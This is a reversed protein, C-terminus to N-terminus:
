KIIVDERVLNYFGKLWLFLNEQMKLQSKQM